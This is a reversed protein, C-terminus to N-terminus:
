LQCKASLHLHTSFWSVVSESYWYRQTHKVLKSDRMIKHLCWLIMMKDNTVFISWNFHSLKVLHTTKNHYQGALVFCRQRNSSLFSKPWPLFFTLKNKKFYKLYPMINFCYNHSIVLGWCHMFCLYRISAFSCWGFCRRRRRVSRHIGRSIDGVLEM